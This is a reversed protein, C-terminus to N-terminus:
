DRTHFTCSNAFDRVRKLLITEALIYGFRLRANSM